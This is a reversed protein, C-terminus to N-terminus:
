QSRKDERGYIWVLIECVNLSEKFGGQNHSCIHMKKSYKYKLMHYSKPAISTM